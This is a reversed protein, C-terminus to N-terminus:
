VYEMHLVSARKKFFTNKQSLIFEFKLKDILYIKDYLGIGVDVGASLNTNFRYIGIQIIRLLM